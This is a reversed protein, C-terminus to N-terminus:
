MKKKLAADIVKKFEDFPQAGAILTGEIFFSPTSNVGYKETAEKAKDQLANMLSTNRICAQVDNPGLGGMRAVMAMSDVPKESRAWQRQSKFLLDVMGAHRKPGACRSIMSAALAPAGLPFDRYIFKVKGTDIYTEKIKPFTEEHFAACHPCALSAYEIITVPADAKGYVLDTMAEETTAVEAMAPRVALAPLALALSAVFLRRSIM